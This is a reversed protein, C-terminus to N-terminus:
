ENSTVHPKIERLAKLASKEKDKIELMIDFDVGKTEALFKRFIRLDISEAHAGKVAGKKQHSFDVMLPGDTKKWTKRAALLAEKLTEGNNLCAHHFSDLLVPVGTRHHIFLCDKLSYLKDDNEIVLRRKVAPSLEGYRAIFREMSSTKDGYVGGVHIQVKASKPLNMLDLVKCHYVLERASNEVIDPRLANILVFQDPHMSIRFGNKKIFTGLERFKGAFYKEWGFSCVPHSAFPVLSSGIRLFLIGRDRNYKLM